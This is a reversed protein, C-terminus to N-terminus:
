HSLIIPVIQEKEGEIAIKFKQLGCEVVNFTTHTGAAGTSAIITKLM